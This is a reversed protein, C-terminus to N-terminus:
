EVSTVINQLKQEHELQKRTEYKEHRAVNPLDEDTIKLDKKIAERRSKKKNEWLEKAREQWTQGESARYVLPLNPVGEAFLRCCSWVRGAWEEKSESYEDGLYYDLVHADVDDYELETNAIKLM